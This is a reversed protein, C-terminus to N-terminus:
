DLGGVDLGDNMNWELNRLERKGKTFNKKVKEQSDKMPEEMYDSLLVVNGDMDVVKLGMNEIFIDVRKANSNLRM